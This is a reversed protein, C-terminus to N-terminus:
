SLFKGSFWDWIGFSFDKFIDIGLASKILYLVLLGTVALITIGCAILCLLTRAAIRQEKASMDRRNRGALLVLYFSWPLLPVKVVPRLDVAHNGGAMATRLAAIQQDSFSTRMEAPLRELMQTTPDQKAQKEKIRM